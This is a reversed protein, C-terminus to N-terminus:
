SIDFEMFLKERYAHDEAARRLDHERHQELLIGALKNYRESEKEREAEIGEEEGWFYRM